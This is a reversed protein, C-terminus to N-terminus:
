SNSFSFSEIIKLGCEIDNITMKGGIMNGPHFDSRHGGKKWEEMWEPNHAWRKKWKWNNIHRTINNYWLLKFFWKFKDIKTM